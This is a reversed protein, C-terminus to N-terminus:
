FQHSVNFKFSRGPQRIVTPHISYDEDLLNDIVFNFQTNQFVGDIPSWNFFLDVTQYGDTTVSGAPVDDQAATITTRAGIRLGYEEIKTAVRITLSDPAVSSLGEDTLPNRGNVTFGSVGFEFLDNEYRIDSEFGDIEAQSNVNRTSGFLTLPGFPPTFVPPITPDVFTVVTDVFNEVDTNFYNVSAILSDGDNFINDERLRLGVEWSQAKEPELLPTPQFLNQINPDAPSQGPVSFHVGDNYLETLTPARFAESYSGWLYIQETPNVGVSIRPTVDSESRDNFTSESELKFHDYRVGPIISVLGDLLDLELQAYGAAFTRSADPFEIRDEGNRTGSQDDQFYEFGYTFAMNNQDDINFRSTNHLDIGYSSFKSRDARNDVIRDESVNVDGYYFVTKFDILNNDPNNYTYNGRINYESTDRDVVTNPSSVDDSATPNLGNSEYFDANIEFRQFETPEIGIKTHGNLVEDQSDVIPNGSGDTFNEGVNRYVMNALMDIKGTQGFVGGSALIEEGNTQYGLAARAGIDQGDRLLDKAGKSELSLVGGIAGSGYLSSASGRIVEIRKILAPDVFFRGRHSLDFNQRAGDLRLVLQQDSFGRISPEEAIRRAGGQIALGPVGELVDSYSLPIFQDIQEQDIVAVATPTEFVNRETKTATVTIVDTNDDMTEDADQANVTAPTCLAALLVLRSVNSKFNM